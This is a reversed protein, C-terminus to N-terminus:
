GSQPRAKVPANEPRDPSRRRAIAARRRCRAEGSGYLCRRLYYRYFRGAWRRHTLVFWRGSGGMAAALLRQTLSPYDFPCIRVEDFRPELWGALGAADFHQYHQATVPTNRHPVTLILRGRPHILGAVAELFSELRPPPVHELVDLVTAVEFLDPVPEALIERVEFTLGPNLARALSVAKESHDLGLVRKGPHRRAIERLFRGDGCGLDVLSEFAAGELLDMAVRLRGLYRYGWSWHYTQSFGRDDAEPLYHYPFDYREEQIQRQPDM